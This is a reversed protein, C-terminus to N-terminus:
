YLYRKRLEEKINVDKIDELSWFKTAGLFGFFLIRSISIEQIPLQMRIKPIMHGRRELSVGTIAKVHNATFMWEKHEKFFAGLVQVENAYRTYYRDDLNKFRRRMFSVPDAWCMHHNVRTFDIRARGVAILKRNGRLIANTIEQTPSSTHSAILLGNLFIMHDEEVLQPHPVIDLVLRLWRILVDHDVKKPIIFRCHQRENIDAIIDKIKAHVFKKDEYQSQTYELQM